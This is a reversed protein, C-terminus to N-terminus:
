ASKVAQPTTYLAEILAAYKQEVPKRRVKLSPTLEGGEVSFDHPVVAFKKITEFRSLRPNVEADFTRGLYDLFRPDKALLAPDTPLGQARAFAPVKEPDLALLAVLYNRRDGVVMANGLPAVAKLLLEINSPATKKGGSTVIIEKKRGTIRLFGDPDLAGVDGSHLWGDELLEATAAPEKYYGLCVNEGHVLIEGDEAIRVKVGSMPRGLTGLRTFHETNVSTPGTVESQGYVERVVLDMSAFFDLVDRGIPAASTVLIRARDLGIKEKLPGFVVRRAAQYALELTIPVRQQSLALLNRQLALKMSAQLLKQKALPQGRIAEEARAKFKEWVRPVGFFVTPRVERLNAGLTDFSEAFYVEIGYLLPGHISALQEAIHSLPLYSLLIERPSLEVAHVLQSATWALNRHSLMVGKPNGTTGSTYILTALASPELADLSADFRAPDQAAGRELLQAFTLVGEPLSGPPDMVPPEIVVVHQLAPLQTRLAQVAALYRANEVVLVKVACHQAVYQLQEPSSNTYIGVAVAGLAMAGLDAVIWEERNFSLIAIADGTQVGLQSLGLACRQVRLLYDRWSTPQYSGSRKTWLAPSGGRQRAQDRLAHLVTKPGELNPRESEM